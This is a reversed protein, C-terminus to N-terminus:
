FEVDSLGTESVATGSGANGALDTPTTSPTWIMGTKTAVTKTTGTPTGLTITVNAGSQVMTSATGTAGFTVVSSANVYGAGGLDVSGLPLQTTNTSNWFTVLDNAGANTIRVVVNQSAGTWGALISNPDLQESRTLTISDGLEAKGATAGNNKTQVDTGSPGTNDVTANFSTAPSIVNGAVDTATITFSKSGAALTTNSTLQASKYAYTVGGVTCSSACATLAVATQGTTINSVDASVTDIGSGADTANAYVWYSGNQKLLAGAFAHAAAAASATPATNDVTVSFGNATGTNNAVDKGTVTYSVSGAALGAGATLQASKYAYTVGNVTCSTSCTPLAVATQGSTISNVNGTVSSVGSAPNGTDSASAYIAYTGGAKIGPGKSSHAIVSATATPGTWDAASAMTGTGGSTTASFASWTGSGGATLVAAAVLSLVILLYRPWRRM